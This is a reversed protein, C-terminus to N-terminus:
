GPPSLGESRRALASTGHQAQWIVCWLLLTFGTLSVTRTATQVAIDEDLWVRARVAGSLWTSGAALVCVAGSFLWCAIRALDGARDPVGADPVTRYLHHAVWILLVLLGIVGSGYQFWKLWPLGTVEINLWGVHRPGWRGTHTFADWVVHTVAGIVVSVAVSLWRRAPMGPRDPLRSRLWRPGLDTLPQRLVAHWLAFVAVGLVLDITFPGVASHSWAAGVHPPVFYPLDPVMAGIALAGPVFVRGARGATLPLVAAIHSITFPM